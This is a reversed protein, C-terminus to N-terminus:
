KLLDKMKKKLGDILKEGAKKKARDLEFLVKPSKATGGLSFDIVLNGKEDKLLSVLDGYKGLDKMGKQVAPPISLTAAYDLTGDLGFSGRIAWDGRSSRIAWDETFFRGNRVIFSGSWDRFDFGESIGLDLGTLGSLPSVFRSFDMRGLHSVASGSASLTKLIDIGPGSRIIGKTNFAFEGEVLNGASHVTSLAKGARVGTFSIDVTTVVNNPDRLDVDVTGTGTGGAYSLRVPDMRVLGNLVRGSATIDTLTAKESIVSDIVATFSAKKLALLAAPNGAPAPAQPKDVDKAAGAAPKSAPVAGGKAFSRADFSRGKLNLVLDPTNVMSDLIKGLGAGKGADAGAARGFEEARHAAEAMAPMVGKWSGSCEFPSENLRFSAELRSIDARDLTASAALATVTMPSGPAAFSANEVNVRGTLGAARWARAIEEPSVRRDSPPVLNALASPAGGGSVKMTVAGAIGPDKKGLQRMLDALEASGDGTFRIEGIRRKEAMVVDFGLVVRSRGLSVELASSGASRETFGVAGGVRIMEELAAHKISLDTITADGQIKIGDPNRVSGKAKAEFGFMGGAIEFPLKKSAAGANEAGGSKAAGGTKEAGATSGPTRLEGLPLSLAGEVLLAADVDAARLNLDFQREKKLDTLAGSVSVVPLGNWDIDLRGIDVSSFARDGTASGRVEVSGLNFPGKGGRSALVSDITARIEINFVDQDPRASLRTGVGALVLRLDRLTDSVAITGGSVDVAQIDPRRRILSLLSVRVVVKGSTFSLARSGPLTKEFELDSIDVGFGFPFRIGIDGFRVTADITREVRPVVLTRLRDGTLIIRLAVSAAVIIGVVVCVVILLFRRGKTM